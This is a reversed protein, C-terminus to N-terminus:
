ACQSGEGEGGRGGREGQVGGLRHTRIWRISSGQGRLERRGWIFTVYAFSGHTDQLLMYQFRCPTSCV